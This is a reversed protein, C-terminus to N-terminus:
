DLLQLSRFLFPSMQCEDRQQLKDRFQKVRDCNIIEKPTLVNRKM